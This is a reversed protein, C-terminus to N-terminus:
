KLGLKDEFWLYMIGAVGISALLGVICSAQFAVPHDAAFGPPALLWFACLGGPALLLLLLVGGVVLSVPSLKRPAGGGSTPLPPRTVGPWQPDAIGDPTNASM